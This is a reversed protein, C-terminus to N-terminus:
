QYILVNSVISNQPKSDSEILKSKKNLNNIEISNNSLNICKVENIESKIERQSTNNSQKNYNLSQSLNINEYTSNLTVKYNSNTKSKYNSEIKIKKKSM